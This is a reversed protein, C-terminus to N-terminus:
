VVSKRDRIIDQGKAHGKLIEADTIDTKLATFEPVLVDFPTNAFVMMSPILSLSISIILLTAIIKRM